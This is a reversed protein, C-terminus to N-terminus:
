RNKNSSRSRDKNKIRLSIGLQWPSYIDTQSLQPPIVEWSLDESADFFKM